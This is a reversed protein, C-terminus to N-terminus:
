LSSPNPVWFCCVIQRRNSPVLAFTFGAGFASLLGFLLSINVRNSSVVSHHLFNKNGFTGLVHSTLLPHLQSCLFTHLISIFYANLNRLHNADQRRILVQYLKRCSRRISRRARNRSRVLVSFGVSVTASSISCYMKRMPCEHVLV